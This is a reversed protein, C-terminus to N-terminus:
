NQLCIEEWICLTLINCAVRSTFPRYYSCVAHWCLVYLYMEIGQLVKVYELLADSMYFGTESM